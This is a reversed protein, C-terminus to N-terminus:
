ATEEKSTVEQVTARNVHFYRLDRNEVTEFVQKCRDLSTDTIFVQGLIEQDLIRAIAQLRRMDLKDFIDDLLLIPAKNKEDELLNYQALKLAIVFTKQQGQSGFNRVAQGGIEFVLDDKHIGVSTRQSYRDRTLGKAFVERWEAADNKEFNTELRITPAEKDSVIWKYYQLFVPQFLRLFRKRANSIFIGPAIMQANWLAVQEPDWNQREAMLSLLANRQTLARDYAILNQLYEQSYQCILSDMFKRRVSPSGDILQTDNPLVTVLPIRGIHDSMRPIQKKDILMKKGKPPMYSCQISQKEAEEILAGAVTFYPADEMLAYKEGKSNWGRTMSLYHLAELINTKGEGNNGTIVNIGASFRVSLDFYNRFQSLQLAEFHVKCLYSFHLKNASINVPKRCEELRKSNHVM